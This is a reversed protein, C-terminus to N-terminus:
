SFFGIRSFDKFLRLPAISRIDVPEPVKEPLTQEVHAPATKDGKGDGRDLFVVYRDDRVIAIADSLVVFEPTREQGELEYTWMTHGTKASVKRLTEKTEILVAEGDRELRVVGASRWDITAPSARLPEPTCDDAAALSACLLTAAALLSTKMAGFTLPTQRIPPPFLRTVRTLALRAILMASGFRCGRWRSRRGPWM